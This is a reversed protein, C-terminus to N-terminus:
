DYVGGEASRLNKKNLNEIFSRTIVFIFNLGNVLKKCKCAIAPTRTADKSPPRISRPTTACQSGSGRQDPWSWRSGVIALCVNVCTIM